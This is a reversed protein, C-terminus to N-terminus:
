ALISLQVSIDGVAHIINERFYWANNKLAQSSVSQYLRWDKRFQDNM